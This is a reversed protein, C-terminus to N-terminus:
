GANFNDSVDRGLHLMTEALLNRVRHDDALRAPVVVEAHVVSGGV